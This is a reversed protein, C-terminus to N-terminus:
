DGFLQFQWTCNIYPRQSFCNGARIFSQRWAGTICILNIIKICSLLRFAYITTAEWYRSRNILYEEQSDKIYHYVILFLMTQLFIVRPYKIINSMNAPPEQAKIKLNDIRNTKTMFFFFLPYIKWAYISLITM